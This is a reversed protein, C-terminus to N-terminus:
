VDAEVPEVAASRAAVVPAPRSLASEPLGDLFSAGLADLLSMERRCRACLELHAAAVLALPPPLTGAAFAILTADDLHHRITM